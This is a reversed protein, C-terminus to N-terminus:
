SPLTSPHTNMEEQLLVLIVVLQQVIRSLLGSSGVLFLYEWTWLCLLLWMSHLGRPNVTYHTFVGPSLVTDPTQSVPKGCMLDDLPSLVTEDVFPAAVVAHDM